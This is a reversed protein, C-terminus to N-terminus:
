PSTVTLRATGSGTDLEGAAFSVNWVMVFPSASFSVRTFTITYGVNATISYTDVGDCEVNIMVGFGPLNPCPDTATIGFLDLGELTTTAEDNLCTAAGTKNSWLATVGASAFDIGQCPFPDPEEEDVCGSTCADENEYPGATITVCSSPDEDYYVCAGDVCYWGAGFYNPNPCLVWEVKYRAVNLVPATEPCPITGPCLTAGGFSFIAYGDGCCDLTAYITEGGSGTGTLYLRPSGNEPDRDFHITYTSGGFTVNSGITWDDTDWEMTEDLDPADGDCLGLSSLRTIQLCSEDRLGAVWGCGPGCDDGAVTAGGVEFLWEQGQTVGYIGRFARVVMGVAGAFGNLEYLPNATATGSLGDTKEEAVGESMTVERWAYPNSGSLVEALFYDHEYLLHYGTANAVLRIPCDPQVTFNALRELEGVIRTLESLSLENSM